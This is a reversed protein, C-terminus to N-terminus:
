WGGHGDLGGFPEGAACRRVLQARRPEAMGAVVDLERRAQADEKVGDELVAARGEAEHSGLSEGLPWALELVDGDDIGDEDAVAVVVVERM